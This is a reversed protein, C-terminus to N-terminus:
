RSNTGGCGRFQAARTRAGESSSPAAPSNTPHCPQPRGFRQAAAELMREMDRLQSDSIDNPPQGQLAKACASIANVIKDAHTLTPNTINKHFFQVTDALRNRRRTSKVHCLHTRYHEPSTSLYWGDVSHFAWSARQDAKEHIQVKCGMPALPMKNYDFPGNIHAYASIAPTANSQRLLNLTIEAQPLLKDWAGPFTTLVERWSASSTPRSTGFPWKPMTAAIAALRSSSMSWRTSPLSSSSRVASIKNYLYLMHKQPYINTAHLHAMIARYARIMEADKRSKLPEILIASSDIDVLVMDYCHGAQSRVPFKGTQDSFVTKRADYVHIAVDRKKVGKLPDPNGIKGPNPNPPDSM